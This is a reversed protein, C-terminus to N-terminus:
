SVHHRGIVRYVNDPGSWEQTHVLAGSPISEVAELLDRLRDAYLLDVGRGPRSIRLRFRGLSGTPKHQGAPGNLRNMIEAQDVPGYGLVEAISCGQRRLDAMHRTFARDELVEARQQELTM